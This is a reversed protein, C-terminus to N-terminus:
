KAVSAAWADRDATYSEFNEPAVYDFTIEITQIDTELLVKDNKREIVWSTATSLDGDARRAEEPLDDQSEIDVWENYLNVRTCTKDDSTTYYDTLMEYEEGNIKISTIECSYGPFQIEGNYVALAAFQTGKNAGAKSFDLGVTYTGEGKVDVETPVVGTSTDPSYKDGVSYGNGWSANQWMMTGIVTSTDGADFDTDALSAPADATAKDVAEKAAAKEEDQTMSSQAKFSRAAYLEKTGDWRMACDQRSYLAGTDWLVPVYGYYDCLSLFNSIYKPADVKETENGNEDEILNLVGYEGIIVPVGQDTFKTLKEMQTSMYEYDSTTGWANGSGDDGCYNWPDYYHVSVIIKDTASDTPLKYRDDCTQDVNTTYGALLLFRQDNNGGCSRVTDVFTQNIKNTVEYTEDESLYGSDAQFRSDNLGAGLEENASELILHSDYDAYATAIQTWLSIYLEMANERVKEDKSGFMGWWSSDWHDNVIVYMDAEYAYDIIEKVRDIYKQDITYDGGEINVANCWAVPIRLTDFGADKMGQIMEQTTIPQGWNTESASPDCTGTTVYTSRAGTAEMTNGLNIGNGMLYAFEVASMTSYDVKGDTSDDNGTSSTKKGTCACLMSVVLIVSLVSYIIRKKM